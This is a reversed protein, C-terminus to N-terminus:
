LNIWGTFLWNGMVLNVEYDGSLTSPLIVEIDTSFVTTTYVVDGDEDKIILTYDPHGVAFTLTYDEIYVLPVEIPSRTNGHGIPKNDEYHVTFSVVERSM